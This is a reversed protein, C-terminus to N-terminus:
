SGLFLRLTARPFCAALPIRWHGFATQWDWRLSALWHTICCVPLDHRIAYAYASEFRALSLRLLHRLQADDERELLRRRSTVKDALIRTAQNTTNNVHLRRRFGVLDYLAVTHRRAVRYAIDFDECTSLRNDFGGIRDFATRRFLPSGGSAFNETILFRNAIGAGFVVERVGRCLRTDSTVNVCTEFHTESCDGKDSFNRYDVFVADVNVNDELYALQTRLKGPLMVDDADFFTVFPSHTCSAGVNRTLGVNGSHTRRVYRVATNQTYKTVIAATDDSSGDDVVVVELRDVEQAIISTLCEAIYPGANYTPVVVSILPSASSAINAQM